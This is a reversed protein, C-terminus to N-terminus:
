RATVIFKKPLLSNPPIDENTILRNWCETFSGILHRRSHLVYGALDNIVDDICNNYPSINFVSGDIISIGKVLKDKLAQRREKAEKKDKNFRNLM